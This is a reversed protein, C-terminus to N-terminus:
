SIELFNVITKAIFEVDREMLDHFLPLCLVRSSISESIPCSAGGEIYPLNNLSPFFYRRPFVGLSNLYSKIALLREESKFVVPYYAYNYTVDALRVPREVSDNVADFYGDYIETLIRRREIIDEIHPYVCLGMAAHFESSKANIGLGWYDEQGNHGFNRMYAIKKAIQPNNTAIGGGEVTHFLKTAHFSITSVDGYSMLGACKYRVGFSHAADYIVKINYKNAIEEILGVSCPMGYVHTAIIGTTNSTIAPEIKCADITFTKDEIDVFVPVADEWVISSTTAVYSFPSTIIEGNLGLAKIAIQLAVTGNSVFYFFKVGLYEALKSELEMVLPGHNTLQGRGWIEEIYKVYESLPPLFSKTVNIM